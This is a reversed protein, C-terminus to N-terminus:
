PAPRGLLAERLALIERRLTRALGTLAPPAEGGGATTTTASALIANLEAARAGLEAWAERNVRPIRPAGPNFVRDRLHQSLSVGLEAADERLRQAEGSTLRIFITASRIQGPPRRPSM